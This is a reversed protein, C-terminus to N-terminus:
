LIRQDIHSWIKFFFFNHDDALYPLIQKSKDANNNRDSRCRNKCINYIEFQYSNTDYCKKNQCYIFTPTTKRQSQILFSLDLIVLNDSKQKVLLKCNYYRRSAARLFAFIHVLIAFPFWYRLNVRNAIVYVEWLQYLDHNVVITLIITQTNSYCSFGSHTSTYLSNWFYNTM